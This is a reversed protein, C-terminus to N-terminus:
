GSLIEYASYYNYTMYILKYESSCADALVGQWDIPALLGRLGEMVKNILGFSKFVKLILLCIHGYKGKLLDQLRKFVQINSREVTM